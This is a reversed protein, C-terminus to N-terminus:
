RTASAKVDEILEEKSSVNGTLALITKYDLKMHELMNAFAAAYPTVPPKAKPVVEGNETIVNGPEPVTYLDAEVLIKEKPLFAVLMGDSSENQISRLEIIHTGDTLVRRETIGEIVAKRKALSLKDPTITHPQAFVKEFYPKNIEQTLIITGQAAYTRLGGAADFHAHTNVVYRIPKPGFLNRIEKLAVNSYAEGLPAEILVLYDNFEVVVSHYVDRDDEDERFSLYYVGDGFLVEDVVIPPPAGMFEGHYHPDGIGRDFHRVPEIVTEIVNRVANTITLDRVPYGGQKELIKSPFILGHQFDKYDSYSAEILMDGLVPNDVRTEVRELRSEKGVYGTFEYGDQRFSIAKYEKGALMAPRVASNALAAAKLFALPTIWIEYQKGRKGYHEQFPIRSVESQQSGAEPARTVVEMSGGTYFDIVRRYSGANSKPWPGNPKKAVGFEFTTGTGSYMYSGVADLDSVGMAKASNSIVTKADQAWAVLPLVALLQVTLIGNKMM